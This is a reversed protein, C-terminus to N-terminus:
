TLSWTRIYNKLEEKTSTCVKNYIESNKNYFKHESKDYEMDHHPLHFLLPKKSNIFCIDSGLKYFRKVIENDEFGWGIINPNFGNLKKFTSTNGLLCGGVAKTNGVVYNDNKFNVYINPRDVFKDLFDYLNDISSNILNKVKYSFYICTGNYGIAITKSDKQVVEIAKLINERSVVCDIDLFCVLQTACKNLGLNYSKSKNYESNNQFFVYECNTEHSLFDFDKKDSDEVFIFKADPFNNKYYPLIINLNNVREQSDKRLHIIFTIM